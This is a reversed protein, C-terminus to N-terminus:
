DVWVYPSDSEQVDKLLGDDAYHVARTRYYGSDFVTVAPYGSVYSVSQDSYSWSGPLDVWTSGDWRQVYLTVSITSVNKSTRTYGSLVLKRPAVVDIGSGWQIILTTAQIGVDASTATQSTTGGVPSVARTGAPISAAALGLTPIALLTILFVTVALIGLRRKGM